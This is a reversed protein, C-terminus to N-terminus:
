PCLWGYCSGNFVILDNIKFDTTSKQQFVQVAWLMQLILSYTLLGYMLHDSLVLVRQFSLGSPSFCNWKHIYFESEFTELYSNGHCIVWSTSLFTHTWENVWTHILCWCLLTICNIFSVLFFFTSLSSVM